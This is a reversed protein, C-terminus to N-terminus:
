QARRSQSAYDDDHMGLGYAVAPISAGLSIGAGGPADSRDHAELRVEVRVLRGSDCRLTGTLDVIRHQRAAPAARRAASGAAGLEHRARAADGIAADRGFLPGTGAPERRSEEAERQLSAAEEQERVRFRRAVYDDDNTGRGTAAARM